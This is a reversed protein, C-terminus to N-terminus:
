REWRVKGDDLARRLDSASGFIETTTQDTAYNAGYWGGDDPSYHLDIDASYHITTQTPM